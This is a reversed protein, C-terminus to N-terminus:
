LYAEFAEKVIIKGIKQLEQRAARVMHRMGIAKHEAAALFAAALVINKIHGGSVEVREALFALDLDDDLPAQPPLLSRFIRERMEADPFPFQVITQMRRIFAEDMNNQLNTALISIGEYSEIRQLLYAAEMNAYRDHSDKVETRKGFLSDGEDFFLVAGSSEAEAFLQRLNKETEGIYKSVIRSLDIRYLELGLERAMVEAAMTKGTGPPGAFLLSLGRGYPLKGGFGWRSYVTEANQYRSCAEQLQALPEAPLILDGWGRALKVKDALESLKHRVQTRSAEEYDAMVPLEGGRWAALRLAQRKTGEIQGPTFKFRDALQEALDGNAGFPEKKWLKKRLDADPATLQESFMAATKPLPLEGPLPQEKCLWFVIAEEAMVGYESLATELEKRIVPWDAPEIPEATEFAIAAASLVAERVLRHLLERLQPGAAPLRDMRVLLLPQELMRATQKAQLKKGAGQPGALLVFPLVPQNGSLSREREVAKALRDALEGGDLPQELNAIDALRVADSLRADLEETELLFSILRSDLKLPQQLGSRFAPPEAESRRFAYRQLKSGEGLLFRADDFEAPNDCLMYLALGATPLCTGSPGNLVGFASEWAPDLEAALALMICRREWVNLKLRWSLAALPLWAGAQLGAKAKDAIAQEEAIRMRRFDALPDTRKADGATGAEWLFPSGGAAASQEFSHLLEQVGRGILRIEDRVYALGNDYKEM